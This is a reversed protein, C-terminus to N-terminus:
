RPFAYPGCCASLTLGTLLAGSADSYMYPRAQARDDCPQVQTGYRYAPSQAGGVNYNYARRAEGPNLYLRRIAPCKSTRRRPRM